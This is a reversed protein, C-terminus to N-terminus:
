EAASEEDDKDEVVWVKIETNLDASQSINVTYVGIEKIPEEIVVMKPDVEFGEKALAESIQREDVSGYLHGEENAKASVTCSVSKLKEAIARLEAKKLEELKVAKAKEVEIKKLNEPSVRMAMGRPLLYNRAYGPEVKVVDGVKGLSPIDKRLILDVTM